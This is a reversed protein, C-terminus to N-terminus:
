REAHEGWHVATEGYRKVRLGNLPPPWEPEGSRLAREVMVVSGPATWGNAGLATLIRHLTAEELAYPPDILVLDFPEASETALVTEVKAQEVRISRFGLSGANRRLIQAARRDSEVFVVYEAGRSLAELGMAGSGGFLDLVRADQLDTAAELASFVAERVKESTPRTGKPPVELRRGGVAGAVIRTVAGNERVSGWCVAM